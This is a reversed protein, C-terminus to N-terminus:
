IIMAGASAWFRPYILSFQMLCSEARYRFKGLCKIPRASDDMWPENAISLVLKRIMITKWNESLYFMNREKMRRILKGTWIEDIQKEVHLIIIIIMIISNWWCLMWQMSLLLLNDELLRFFLGRILPFEQIYWRSSTCFELLLPSNLWACLQNAAWSLKWNGGLFLLMIFGNRARFVFNLRGHIHDTIIICYYRLEYFTKSIKSRRRMHANHTTGLAKYATYFRLYQVLKGNLM